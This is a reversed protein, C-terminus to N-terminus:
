FKTLIQLIGSIENIHSLLEVFLVLQLTSYITVSSELHKSYFYLLLSTLLLFCERKKHGATILPHSVTIFFRYGKVKRYRSLLFLGYGLLSSSLSTLSIKFDEALIQKSLFDM